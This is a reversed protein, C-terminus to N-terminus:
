AVVCRDDVHSAVSRLRTDSAEALDPLIRMRRTAVQADRVALGWSREAETSKRVALRLHVQCRPLIHTEYIAKIDTTSPTGFEDRFSMRM